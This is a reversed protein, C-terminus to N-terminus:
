GKAWKYVMIERGEEDKGAPRLVLRVPMGIFVERPDCDVVESIIRVGEPTEVEALIYPVRGEWRPPPAHVVTYAYVSGRGSLEVPELDPSTCNVCFLADRGLTCVGCERCRTGLLVGRTGDGELRLHSPFIPVRQHTANSTSM